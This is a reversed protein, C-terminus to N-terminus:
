YCFKMIKHVFFLDLQLSFLELLVAVSPKRLSCPRTMLEKIFIKGPSLYKIRRTQMCPLRAYFEFFRFAWCSQKWCPQRAHFDSFGFHVATLDAVLPTRYLFSNKFNQLMWLFVGTNSERKLLTAPRFSQGIKILFLCCLHKGTFIVFNILVGVKFFM